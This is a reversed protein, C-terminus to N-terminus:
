QLLAPGDEEGTKQQGCHGSDGIGPNAAMLEDVVAVVAVDGVIPMDLCAQRPVTQGPGEALEV